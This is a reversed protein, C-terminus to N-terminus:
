GLPVDQGTLTVAFGGPVVVVERLVLQEPLGEVDQRVTLLEAAANGLLRQAWDPAGVDVATPELLVQGGDAQVTGTASLRVRQGLVETTRTIRAQSGAAELTVEPGIQAAVVDFPVVADVSLTGALLGADGIMVDTASMRVDRLQTDSTLAQSGSLAMDRLWLDDGSLAPPRVDTNGAPPPAPTAPRPAAPSRGGGSALGSWVVLALGSTLLGVVALVAVLGLLVRRLATRM